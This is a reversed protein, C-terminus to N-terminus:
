HLPILLKVITGCGQDGTYLDIIEISINTNHKQNHLYIRNQTIDMGYSKHNFSNGAKIKKSRERGIGNDKISYELFQDNINKLSIILMGRLGDLYKIGHLIANEVHPQMLMPPINVNDYILEEDIQYEVDFNDENRVKELEIYLEL